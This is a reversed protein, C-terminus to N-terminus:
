SACARRSCGRRPRSCRQRPWAPRTGRRRSGRRTRSQPVRSARRRPRADLPVGQLGVRAEVPALEVAAIAQEQQDALVDIRERAALEELKAGRLDGHLLVEGGPAAHGPVFQDREDPAPPLPAKEDALAPEGLPDLARRRRRAAEHGLAARDGDANGVARGAARGPAPPRRREDTMPTPLQGRGRQIRSAMWACM